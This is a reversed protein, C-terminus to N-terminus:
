SYKKKDEATDRTCTHTEAHLHQHGESSVSTADQRSEVLDRRFTEDAENSADPDGM